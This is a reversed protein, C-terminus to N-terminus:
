LNMECAAEKHIIDEFRFWFPRDWGDKLFARLTKRVSWYIDLVIYHPGSADARIRLACIHDACVQGTCWSGASKKGPRTRRIRVSFSEPADSALGNNRLFERLGHYCIECMTGVAVYSNRARRFKVIV